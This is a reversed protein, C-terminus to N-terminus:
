HPYYKSKIEFLLSKWFPKFKEGNRPAVKIMEDSSKWNKSDLIKPIDKDFCVMLKDALYHLASLAAFADMVITYTIKFQKEKLEHKLENYANWWSLEKTFPTFLLRYPISVIQFKSLVTKQNIQRILSPINDYDSFNGRRAILRTVAEIQAGCVLMMNLLRPSYIQATRQREYPVVEDFMLMQKELDTHLKRLSELDIKFLEDVM